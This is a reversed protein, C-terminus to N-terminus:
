GFSKFSELTVIFLFDMFAHATKTRNLLTDIMAKTTYARSNIHTVVCPRSRKVKLAGMGELLSHISLSHTTVTITGPIRTLVM